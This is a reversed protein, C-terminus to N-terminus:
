SSISGMPPIQSRRSQLPVVTGSRGLHRLYDIAVRDLTANQAETGGRRARYILAAIIGVGVAALGFLYVRPDQVVTQSTMTIVTRRPSRPHSPDM